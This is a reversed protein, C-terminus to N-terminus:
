HKELIDDIDNIVKSTKLLAERVSNFGQLMELNMDKVPYKGYCGLSNGHHQMAVPRHYGYNGSSTQSRYLASDPGHGTFHGDSFSPRQDQSNFSPNIMSSTRSSQGEGHSQLAHNYSMADTHRQQYSGFNSALRHTNSFNQTSNDGRQIFHEVHDGDPPVRAQDQIQM